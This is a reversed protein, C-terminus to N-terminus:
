VFSYNFVYMRILRFSFVIYYLINDYLFIEIYNLYM